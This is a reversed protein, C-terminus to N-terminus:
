NEPPPFGEGVTASRQARGKRAPDGRLAGNMLYAMAFSACVVLLMAFLPLYSFYGLAVCFQITPFHTLYMGYSFDTEDGVFSFWKLALGFWMVCVTLAFPMLIETRTFYHLFFVLLAPVVMKNLNKRFSEWNYVFLMGSVFYSVFGPFQHAMDSLFSSGRSQGLWEFFLNWLISAVSCCALFISKGKRSRIKEIIFILLPLLLYFAVEVKITWLAGNVPVSYM